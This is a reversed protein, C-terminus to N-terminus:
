LTKLLAILDEAMKKQRYVSPHGCAGVDPGRGMMKNYKLTVIKEDGTEAKIADVIRCINDYLYYDMAGLACVITTDPGNLRRIDKVFQTYAEEFHRTAAAHDPNFYVLSADNTGLNLVVFKAPKAAFDFVQLTPNEIGRAKALKEELVRDTYPYLDPMTYSGPFGGSVAIGSVSIFRPELNLSRATIAGHTMWGDEESAEFEHDMDATDNGFGCTISDGIFEIVEKKEPSFPLLEGDMAFGTLGLCTRFNETLKVIKIRHTEPQTAHFIVKTDGDNVPFRAFPEEADDVIVSIWPWDERKPPEFGPMMPGRNPPVMTDPIATFSACLVTGTFEVEFTGCTYDSYLAQGQADYYSRGLVNVLSKAESIPVIKM